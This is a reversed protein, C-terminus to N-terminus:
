DIEHLLIYCALNRMCYNYEEEIGDSDEGFVPKESLTRMLCEVNDGRSVRAAAQSM